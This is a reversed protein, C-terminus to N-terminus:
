PPDRREGRALLRRERHVLLVDLAEVLRLPADLAKHALVDAVNQARVVLVGLERPWAEEDPILPELHVGHVLRLAEPLELLLIAKAKAVDGLAARLDARDVYVDGVVGDDGEFFADGVLVVVRGLPKHALDPTSLM